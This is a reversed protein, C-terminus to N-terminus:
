YKENQEVIFDTIPNKELRCNNMVCHGGIKGAAPNLVPRVFQSMGLKSYGENYDKNFQTYAFDFDVGYKDCLKKMEKCFVINWGFYTTCMLKALETNKSGSIFRAPIGAALFYDAIQKGLDADSGGVDKAFTKIGGTLDPHKGRIPSHFVGSRMKEVAETTGVPVTSHIVIAEPKYKDVYEVVSDVFRDSYPFCIHLINFSGSEEEGKDISRVEYKANLIEKLARGVEGNGAVLTKSGTLM